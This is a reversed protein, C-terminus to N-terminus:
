GAPMLSCDEKRKLFYRVKASLEKVSEKTKASQDNENTYPALHPRSGRGGVARGAGFKRKKKYKKEGARIVCVCNATANGCPGRLVTKVVASTFGNVHM